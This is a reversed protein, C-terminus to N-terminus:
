YILRFGNREVPPSFHRRNFNEVFESIEAFLEHAGGYMNTLIVLIYPTGAYVIAADHFARRYWGYKRAMDYSSRIMTVDVRQGVAGSTIPWGMFRHSTEATNMLDYRFYHGFRSEGEIYEFIANMWMGVDVAHVTQSIVDRIMARDRGLQRVFDAYSPTMDRTMDVLWRFAANDSERISLSLLERTTLVRGPESFQLTGTGGWRRASTYTHEAYMDILGLEALHFVYFAHFAKPVSAGFFIRNPNHVYTFGNSLNKYFVAVDGGLRRFFGDLEAKRPAFLVNIWGIGRYTSIRAWGDDRINGVIQVTQPGFRSLVNSNFDAEEYAYFPVTMVFDRAQVSLHTFFLLFAVIALAKM